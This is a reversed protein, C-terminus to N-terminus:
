NEPLIRRLNRLDRRRDQDVRVSSSTSTFHLHFRPHRLLWKKVQETLPESPLQEPSTIVFIGEIGDIQHVWLSGGDDEPATAVLVEASLVRAIVQGDPGYGAVVLQIAADLQDTPEPFGLVQPSPRYGVNRIFSDTIVGEAIEYL